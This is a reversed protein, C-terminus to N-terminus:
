KHHPWSRIRSSTTHEEKANESAATFLPKPSGSAISYLHLHNQLSVEPHSKNRRNHVFVLVTFSTIHQTTFSEFIEQSLSYLYLTYQILDSLSTFHFAVPPAFPESLLRDFSDPCVPPHYISTCFPTVQPLRSVSLSLLCWSNLHPLPGFTKTLVSAPRANLSLTWLRADLSLLM